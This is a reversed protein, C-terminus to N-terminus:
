GTRSILTWRAFAKACSPGGNPLCTTSALRLCRRLWSGLMLNWITRAFAGAEKTLLRSTLAFTMDGEFPVHRVEGAAVYEAIDGKDDRSAAAFVDAAATSCPIFRKAALCDIARVSRCTCVLSLIVSESSCDAIDVLAGDPLKTLAINRRTVHMVLLTVKRMTRNGLRRRRRAVSDSGFPEPAPKSRLLQAPLRPACSSFLGSLKKAFVLRVSRSCPLAVWTGFVTGSHGLADRVLVIQVVDRFM